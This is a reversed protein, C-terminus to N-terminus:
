HNLLIEVLEEIIQSPLNEYKVYYDALRNGTDEYMSINVSTKGLSEIQHIEGDEEEYIIPEEFIEVLDFGGGHFECLEGVKEKIFNVKDVEKLYPEITYYNGFYKIADSIGLTKIMKPISSDKNEQIVDGCSKVHKTFMELAQGTYNHILEWAENMLDDYKRLVSQTTPWNSSGYGGILYFTARYNKYTYEQHPLKTRKDPHKVEVKCLIDKHDNVFGELLMEMVSTLDKNTEERLIRKIDHRLDM